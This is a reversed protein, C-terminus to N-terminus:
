GMKDRTEDLRLTIKNRMISDSIYRKVVGFLDKKNNIKKREEREKLTVAKVYIREGVRLIPRLYNKLNNYITTQNNAETSIHNANKEYKNKATLYPQM